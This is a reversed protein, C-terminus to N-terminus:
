KSAKQQQAVADYQPEVGTDKVIQKWLALDVKVTVAVEFQRSSWSRRPLSDPTISSFRDGHTGAPLSRHSSM